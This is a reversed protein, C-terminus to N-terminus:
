KEGEKLQNLIKEIKSAKETEKEKVFIIKPIPRMKLRQNLKQQLFYIQGTLTKLIKEAESEPVVSLYVKSQILNSSTEVRTITVLIGSFDVEKLLIQGLERKILENVKPVRESM